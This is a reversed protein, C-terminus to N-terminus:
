ATFVHFEQGCTGESLYCLPTIFCCPAPQPCHLHVEYARTGPAPIPKRLLSSRNLPFSAYDAQSLCRVGPATVQVLHATM